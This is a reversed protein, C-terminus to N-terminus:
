DGARATESSMTSILELLKAYPSSEQRLRQALGAIHSGFRELLQSGSDKPAVCAFELMLPLFDPLDSTSIEWGVAKYFHNLRALAPGRDKSDGFEHFTLNLTTSPNLDFTRSYVEQLTLLPTRRLYSLFECCVARAPSDPFGDFAGELESLSEFVESEPYDLLISLIKYIVNNNKMM